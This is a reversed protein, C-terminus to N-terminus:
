KQKFDKLATQNLEPIKEFPDAPRCALCRWLLPCVEKTFLHLHEAVCFMASHQLYRKWETGVPKEDNEIHNYTTIRNVMGLMAWSTYLKFSKRLDTSTDSKTCTQATTKSKWLSLMCFAGVPKSRAMGESLNEQLWQCKFSSNM